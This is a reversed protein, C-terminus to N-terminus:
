YCGLAKMRDDAVRMYGLTWTFEPTGPTERNNNESAQNFEKQLADCDDLALIRKYVEPNGGYESLYDDLLPSPPMASNEITATASPTQISSATSPDLLGSIVASCFFIVCIVSTIGVCGLLLRNPKKKTQPPKAPPTPQLKKKAAQDTKASVFDDVVLDDIDLDLVIGFSARMGSELQYGGILRGRCVGIAVPHGLAKLKQRYRLADQKPLHGVDEEEVSVAVANSDYPNHDELFLQVADIENDDHESALQALYEQYHSEGVVQQDYLGTPKFFVTEM